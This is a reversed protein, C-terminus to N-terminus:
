FRTRRSASMMTTQFHDWSSVFVCFLLAHILDFHFPSNKQKTKSSLINDRLSKKHSKQEWLHSKKSYFLGLFAVSFSSHWCFCCSHTQKLLKCRSNWVLHFSKSALGMFLQLLSVRRLFFFIESVSGNQALAGATFAFKLFIRESIEVEGTQKIPFSHGSFFFKKPGWSLFHLERQEVFKLNM